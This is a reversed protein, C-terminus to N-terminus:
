HSLSAADRRKRPFTIWCTMEPSCDPLVYAISARATTTMRFAVSTGLKAVASMPSRGVNTIQCNSSPPPRVPEGYRHPDRDTDHERQDDLSHEDPRYEGFRVERAHQHGDADEHDELAAIWSWQPEAGRRMSAGNLPLKVTPLVSIM